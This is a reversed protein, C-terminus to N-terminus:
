GQKAEKVVQMERVEGEVQAVEAVMDQVKKTCQQRQAAVEFQGDASGVISNESIRASVKQVDENQQQDM